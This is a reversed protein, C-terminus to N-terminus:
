NPIIFRKSEIWKESTKVDSVRLDTGIDQCGVFNWTHIFFDADKEYPSLINKFFSSYTNEFTRLHGSMCVAIKMTEKIEIM